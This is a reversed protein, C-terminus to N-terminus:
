QVPAWFVRDRSKEYYMQVASIPQEVDLVSGAITVVTGPHIIGRVKIKARSRKKAEIMEQELEAEIEELRTRASFKAKLLKAVAVRKERPTRELIARPDGIGIVKDIKKI